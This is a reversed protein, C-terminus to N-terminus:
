DRDSLPLQELAAAYGPGITLRGALWRLEAALAAPTPFSVEHLNSILIELGIGAEGCDLLPLVEGITFKILAHHEPPCTRQVARLARLFRFRTLKHGRRVTM